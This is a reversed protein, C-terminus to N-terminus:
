AYNEEDIGFCATLDNLLLDTLDEELTQLGTTWIWPTEHDTESLEDLVWLECEHPLLVDTLMWLRDGMEELTSQSVEQVEYGHILSM